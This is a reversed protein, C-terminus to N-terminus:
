ILVDLWILCVVYSIFLTVLFLDTLFLWLNWFFVQRPYVAPQQQITTLRVFANNAQPPITFHSSLGSFPITNPIPRIGM